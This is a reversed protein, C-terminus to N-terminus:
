EGHFNSRGRGGIAGSTGLTTAASSAVAVLAACDPVGVGTITPMAGVASSSNTGSTAPAGVGVKAPTLGGVDVGVGVGVDPPAIALPGVSVRAAVDAPALAGVSAAVDGGAAVGIGVLEFWGGVLV